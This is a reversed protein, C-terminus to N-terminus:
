LGATFSNITFKVFGHDGLRRKLGLVCFANYFRDIKLIKESRFSLLFVFVAGDSIWFVYFLTQKEIFFRPWGLFGFFRGELFPGGPLGWGWVGSLPGLRSGLEPPAKPFFLPTQPPVGELLFWSSCLDNATQVVYRLSKSFCPTQYAAAAWHFRRERVFVIMRSTRPKMQSGQRWSFFEQRNWWTKESGRLAAAWHSRWKKWSCVCYSELVMPEDLKRPTMERRKQWKYIRWGGGLAEAWHFRGKFDKWSCLIERTGQNWRTEKADCRM